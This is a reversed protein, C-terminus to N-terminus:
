EVALDLERDLLLQEVQHLALGDDRDRMPEGRNRAHIPEDHEIRALDDFLSRVVLQQAVAAVVLLEPPVLRAAEDRVLEVVADLRRLQPGGDTLRIRPPLTFM